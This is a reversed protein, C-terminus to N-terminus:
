STSRQKRQTAPKRAKATPPTKAVSEAVPEVVPATEVKPEEAVQVVAPAFAEEGSFDYTPQIDAPLMEFAAVDEQARDMSKMESLSDALTDSVRVIEGKKVQTGNFARSTYSSLGVLKLVKAM